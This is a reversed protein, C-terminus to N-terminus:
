LYGFFPYIRKKGLFSQETKGFYALKLIKMLRDQLLGCFLKLVRNLQEPLMQAGWTQKAIHQACRTLLFVANVMELKPLSIKQLHMLGLKQFEIHPLVEM